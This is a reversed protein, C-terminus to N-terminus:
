KVEKLKTLAEDVLKHYRLMGDRILKKHEETFKTGKKPM